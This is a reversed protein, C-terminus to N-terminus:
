PCSVELAFSNSEDNKDQMLCVGGGGGGGGGCVCVCVCVLTLVSVVSRSVCVCHVCVYVPVCGSM